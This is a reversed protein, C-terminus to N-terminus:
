HRLSQLESTHEESRRLLVHRRAVLCVARLVNIWRRIRRLPLARRTATSLSHPRVPNGATLSRPGGVLGRLAASATAASAANLSAASKIRLPGVRHVSSAAPGGCGGWGPPARFM